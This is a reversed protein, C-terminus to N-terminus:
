IKGVSKDYDHRTLIGMYCDTKCKITAARPKNNILAQEGFSDGDTLTGVECINKNTLETIQKMIAEFKVEGEKSLTRKKEPIYQDNPDAKKEYVIYELDILSDKVCM